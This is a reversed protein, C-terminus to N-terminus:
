RPAARGFIREVIVPGGCSACRSREAFLADGAAFRRTTSANCGRCREASYAEPEDDDGPRRRGWPLGTM